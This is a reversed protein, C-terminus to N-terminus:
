DKPPDKPDKTVDIEESDTPGNFGPRYNLDVLFPVTHIHKLHNSSLYEKVDEVAEQFSSGHEFHLEQLLNGKKFTTKYITKPM